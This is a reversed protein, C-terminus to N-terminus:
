VCLAVFSGAVAAGTGLSSGAGQLWPLKVFLKVGDGVLQM